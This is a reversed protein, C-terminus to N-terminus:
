SHHNDVTNDYQQLLLEEHLLDLNQVRKHDVAKM